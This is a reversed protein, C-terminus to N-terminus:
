GKFMKKDCGGDDSLHVQSLASTHASKLLSETAVVPLNKKKKSAAAQHM